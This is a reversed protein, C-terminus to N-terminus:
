FAELFFGLYFYGKFITNEINTTKALSKIEM